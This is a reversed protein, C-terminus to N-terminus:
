GCGGQGREGPTPTSCGCARVHADGFPICGHQGLVEQNRLSEAWRGRTEAGTETTQLVRHWVGLHLSSYSFWSSFLQELRFNQGIGGFHYLESEQGRGLSRWFVSTEMRPYIVGLWKDGFCTLFRSLLSGVAHVGEGAAGAKNSTTAVPRQSLM